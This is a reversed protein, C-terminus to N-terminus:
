DNPIEALKIGLLSIIIVFVVMAGVFGYEKQMMGSINVGILLVVFVLTSGISSVIEMQKKNM